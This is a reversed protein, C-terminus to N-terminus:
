LSWVQSFIAAAPGATEKAHNELKQLLKRAPHNEPAEDCQYSLCRLLALAYAARHARTEHQEIQRLGARIASAARADIGAGRAAPIMAGFAIPKDGYRVRAGANNLRRLTRAITLAEGRNELQSFAAITAIHLDTCIFMSM